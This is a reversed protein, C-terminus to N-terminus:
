VSRKVAVVFKFRVSRTTVFVFEFGKRAGGKECGWYLRTKQSVVGLVLPLPPGLRHLPDMGWRCVANKQGHFIGGTM